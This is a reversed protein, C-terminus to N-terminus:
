IEGVASRVKSKWIGGKERREGSQEEKRERNRRM